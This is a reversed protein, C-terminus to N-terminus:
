GPRRPRRAPRRCGTPPRRPAPRRRDGAGPDPRARGARAGRPPREGDVAREAAAVQGAAEDYADRGDALARLVGRATAATRQHEVLVRARQLDSAASDHRGQALEAAALAEGAHAAVAARVREVADPVDTSLLDAWGPWEVVASSPAVLEAAGDHVAREGAGGTLLDGDLTLQEAGGDMVGVADAAAQDSAEELARRPGARRRRSRLGPARGPRGAGARAGGRARRPRRDRRRRCRPPPRGAVARHRHVAPHRVAARAARARQEPSARLFAAFDGQPLLVVKAFQELGMGLVDHIVLAAEDNRTARPVWAGRVVSRSCWRPRSAPPAPAACSPASSSPPAPSRSAAAPPPSSSCWRPSPAPPPTTATCRGAARPRPRRARRRLPRLLDRRARQDQRRRHRRPDPLARRRGARRLRGGRHPRVARVRHGAAPAAERSRGGRRRAPRGHRGAGRGRAAGPRAPLGRGGRGARGREPETPAPAAACTSSSTAACTSTTASASGRPTPRPASRCAPTRSSCCWRTRSASGAAAGDRGAPPRRRHAHGPM